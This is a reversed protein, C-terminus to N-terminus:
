RHIYVEPRANGKAFGRYMGETTFSFVAEGARDLVIVGGRGGIATVKALAQDAAAPLTLGKYKVLAAIDHAVANRIFMEGTGTASVAVSENEAWTGAGIIPSDGIRGARKGDVGGTSTAAALNGSRDLAVAGVTGLKAGGSLGARKGRSREQPERREPSRFYAPDVLALGQEKAFKEAGAGAMLVHGSKEMVVRAAEVPNKVTTVGAVAGARREKGDMISADMEHAGERTRVSGKGANFQASDEMVKVAAIVADLSSGDAALIRRGAELAEALAARVAAERELSLTARSFDGAGGHVVIAFPAEQAQVSACISFALAAAALRKMM